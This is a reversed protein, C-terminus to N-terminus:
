NDVESGFDDSAENYEVARFNIGIYLSFVVFIVVLTALIEIIPTPFGLLYLPLTVKDGRDAVTTAKCDLRKVVGM